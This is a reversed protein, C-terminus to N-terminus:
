LVSSSTIAFFLDPLPRVGFFVRLVLFLATRAPVFVTTLVSARGEPNGCALRAGNLRVRFAWRVPANAATVGLLITARGERPWYSVLRSLFGAFKWASVGSLKRSRAALTYGSRVAIM